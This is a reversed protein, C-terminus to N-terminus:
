PTGMAHCVAPIHMSVLYNAAESCAEDSGMDKVPMWDTAPGFQLFIWLIFQSM